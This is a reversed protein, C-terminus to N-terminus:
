AKQVIGVRNYKSALTEEVWRIQNDNLFFPNAKLDVM